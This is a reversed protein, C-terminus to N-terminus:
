NKSTCGYPKKTTGDRMFLYSLTEEITLCNGPLGTLKKVRHASDISWVPLSRVYIQTIEQYVGAGWAGDLFPLGVCGHCLPLLETTFYLMPNQHQEEYKMFGREHEPYNPNLIEWGKFFDLITTLLALELPTSYTNMPHAFYLMKRQRTTAM